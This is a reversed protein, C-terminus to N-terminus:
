LSICQEYCPEFVYSYQCVTIVKYQYLDLSRYSFPLFSLALFDRFFRRQKQRQRHSFICGLPPFPVREVYNQLQPDDEGDDNDDDDDNQDTETAHQETDGIGRKFHCIDNFLADDWPMPIFCWYDPNCDLFAGLAIPFRASHTYLRMQNAARRRPSFIGDSRDM